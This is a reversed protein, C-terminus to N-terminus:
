ANIRDLADLCALLEDQTPMHTVKSHLTVYAPDGILAVVRDRDAPSDLDLAHPLLRDHAVARVRELAKPQARGGLTSVVLGLLQVDERAGPAAEPAPLRWAPAQLRPLACCLVVIASAVVAIAIALWLEAGQLWCLPGVVIATLSAAAILQDRGLRRM